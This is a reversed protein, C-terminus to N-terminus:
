EIFMYKWIEQLISNNGIPANHNSIAAINLSLANASSYPTPLNDVIVPHETSSLFGL